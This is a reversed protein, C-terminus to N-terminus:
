ERSNRLLVSSTYVSNRYTAINYQLLVDEEQLDAPCREQLKLNNILKFTPKHRDDSYYVLSPSSCDLGSIDESSM